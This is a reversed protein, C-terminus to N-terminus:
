KGNLQGQQTILSARAREVMEHRRILAKKIKKEIRGQKFWSAGDVFVKGNLHDMEHQIAFAYIGRFEYEHEKGSADQFHVVITDPRKRKEFHGPVSLCGEEFTFLEDSSQIISPNIFILPTRPDIRLVFMNVLEGIQPAALGVGESATMTFFMDAILEELDNNFETVDSCQQHLADDPWTLIERIKPIYNDKPNRM